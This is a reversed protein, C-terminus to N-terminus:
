SSGSFKAKRKERFAARGEAADATAFLWANAREAFLLDQTSFNRNISAKLLALAGPALAAMGAALTRAEDILTDHPAVRAVLGYQQAEAATLRRATLLIERARAVGILGPLRQMAFGPVVGLTPEPVAFTARESAVIVDCAIALELGGGFAYGNVAAIVPKQLREPSSLFALTDRLQRAAAEPTTALEDIDAGVSFAKGAGTLIVVRVDARADVAALAAAVDQEVQRSLANLREPRNIRVLAVSDQVDYEVTSVV